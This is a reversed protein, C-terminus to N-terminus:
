AGVARSHGGVTGLGRSTGELRKDQAGPGCSRRVERSGGSGDVSLQVIIQGAALQLTQSVEDVRTASDCLILDGAAKAPQFRTEAGFFADLNAHLLNGLQFFNEGPLRVAILGKVVKM